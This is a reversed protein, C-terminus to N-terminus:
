SGSPPRSNNLLNCKINGDRRAPGREEHLEEVGHREGVDDGHLERVGEGEPEGEEHFNGM